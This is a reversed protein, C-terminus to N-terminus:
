NDILKYKLKLILKTVKEKSINLVGEKSNHEILKVLPAQRLGDPEQPDFVYNNKKQNLQGIGIVPQNAKKIAVLDKSNSLRGFLPPEFKLNRNTINNSDNKKM